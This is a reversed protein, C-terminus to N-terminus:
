TKAHTTELKEKRRSMNRGKFSLKCMVDEILAKGVREKRQEEKNKGMIAKQTITEASNSDV